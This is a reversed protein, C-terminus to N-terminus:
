KLLLLKQFIKINDFIFQVFYVGSSLNSLDIFIKYFNALKYGNDLERILEGYINYLKIIINGSYNLKYNLITKSNFPNPYNQYVEIQKNSTTYEPYKPIKGSISVEDSPISEKNTNDVATIKYFLRKPGNYVYSSNDIYNAVPLGNKYADIIDILEYSILNKDWVEARYIKYKGGNIIDPEINPDWVLEAEAEESAFVQLNQPKSPTALESNYLYVNACFNGSSDKSLIEICIKNTDKFLNTIRNTSPNSWSSFIQNYNINFLDNADGLCNPHSLTIRCNTSDIKKNTLEMESLGKGNIRNTKTKLFPYFFLFDRGCNPWYFNIGDWDWRGDACEISQLQNPGCRSILIG